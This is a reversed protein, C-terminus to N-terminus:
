GAAAVERMAEIARDIGADDVDKHTVLRLRNRSFPITRVSRKELEEMWWPAPRETELILINTPCPEPALGEIERAAEAMRQARERDEGLRDVMENLAVIGCAALIGAQRMGGGMRKRWFEVEALFDAPGVLVSGVPAALGKSLCISATDAMGALVRAETGLSEAANFLRAGDLHVPIGATEAVEKVYGMACASIAAGGHRNHSNEWCIVATGPTHHSRETIAEKVVRSDLEGRDSPLGRIMAGAIVAPAGGEYWFIHAQDEALIIDGPKCYTALAAQNAMTGSPFFLGAEKGLREAALEELKQVTPDRELVNDGLEADAMARYMAETPKTVTDSRLDVTM